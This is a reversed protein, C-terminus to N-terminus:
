ALPKMSPPPCRHASPNWDRSNLDCRRCILIQEPSRQRFGLRRFQTAIGGRACAGSRCANDAPEAASDLSTQDVPEVSSCIIALRAGSPQRSVTAAPPRKVFRQTRARQKTPRIPKGDPVRSATTGDLERMALRQRVNSLERDLERTRWELEIAAQAEVRKLERELDRVLREQTEIFALHELKELTLLPQGSFVEEGAKIQVSTLRSAAPVRITTIDASLIGTLPQNRHQGFLYM